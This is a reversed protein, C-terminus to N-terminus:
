GQELRSSEEELHQVLMGIYIEREFPFMNDIETLSYKHYQMLAFNMKYHNQLTEHSLNVLFFKGDGGAGERPAQRM